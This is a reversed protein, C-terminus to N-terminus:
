ELFILIISFSSFSLFLSFSVRNIPINVIEHKQKEINLNTYESEICNRNRLLFKNKANIGQPNVLKLM